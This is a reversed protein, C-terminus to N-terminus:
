GVAQRYGTRLGTRQSPLIVLVCIGIALGGIINGITVPILNGFFGAWSLNAVSETALGAANLVAPQGALLMGLPIFYMNAVSHEFGAAVFATIPFVIAFIKDVVTRASFCLWVALCVLMNCLIGRVLATGFSLNVKANAINLANVGVANNNLTWQNSAFIQGVIILSGVLNATYVIGWNRLLQTLKVGASL